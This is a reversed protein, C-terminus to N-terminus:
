PLAAVMQLHCGRGNIFFLQLSYILSPCLQWAEFIFGLHFSSRNEETIWLFMSGEQYSAAFLLQSLKEKQRWTLQTQTGTILLVDGPGVTLAWFAARRWLVVKMEIGSQDTVVISALPM